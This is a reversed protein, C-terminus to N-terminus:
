VSPAIPVGHEAAFRRSRIKDGMLRIVDADPGIFAIGAAAVAEAFGANESLFGSGPHLAQAGTAKAAAIIQTADLYAQVPVAGTLEIARDAL